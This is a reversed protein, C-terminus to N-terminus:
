RGALLKAIQECRLFLVPIASVTLKFSNFFKQVSCRTRSGIHYKFALVNTTNVIICKVRVEPVWAHLIYNLHNIRQIAKEAHTSPTSDPQTAIMFQDMYHELKDIM